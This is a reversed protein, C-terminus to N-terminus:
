QCPQLTHCNIMPLGLPMFSAFGNAMETFFLTSLYGALEDVDGCYEEYVEGVDQMCRFACIVELVERVGLLSEM